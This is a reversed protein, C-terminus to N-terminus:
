TLVELGKIKALTERIAPEKDRMVSVLITVKTKKERWHLFLDAVTEFACPDERSKNLELHANLKNLSVVLTTDRAVMRGTSGVFEFLKEYLEVDEEEYYYPEWLKEDGMFDAFEGATVKIESLKPKKTKM